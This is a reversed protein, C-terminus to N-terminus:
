QLSTSQTSKTARLLWMIRGIWGQTLSAQNYNGIPLEHDLYSKGKLYNGNNISMPNILDRQQERVRELQLGARLAVQERNALTRDHAKDARAGDRALKAQMIYSALGLLATVSIALIEVSLGNDEQKAATAKVESNSQM